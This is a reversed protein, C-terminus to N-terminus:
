IFVRCQEIPHNTIDCVACGNPTTNANVNSSAGSSSAFDTAIAVSSAVSPATGDPTVDDKKEIAIQATKIKRTQTQTKNQTSSQAPTVGSGPTVAVQDKIFEEVHSLLFDGSRIKSGAYMRYVGKLEVPLKSEIAEFLLGQTAETPEPMGEREAASLVTQVASLLNM